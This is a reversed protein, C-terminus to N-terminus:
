CLQRQHQLPHLQLNLHKLHNLHRAIGSVMFQVRDMQSFFEPMWSGEKNMNLINYIYTHTHQICFKHLDHLKPTVVPGHCEHCLRKCDRKCGCPLRMNAHSWAAQRADPMQSHRGNSLEVPFRCRSAVPPGTGAPLCDAPGAGPLLQFSFTGMACSSSTSVQLFKRYPLFYRM